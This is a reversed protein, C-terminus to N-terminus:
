HPHTQAVALLMSEFFYHPAAAYEFLGGAPVSYKKSGGKRLRSLLVHHYGNGLQGAVFLVTGWTLM